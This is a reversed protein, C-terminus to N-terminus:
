GRVSGVSADAQHIRLASALREVDLLDLISCGLVQRSVKRSCGPNLPWFSHPGPVYAQFLCSVVM